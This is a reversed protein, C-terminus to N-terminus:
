WVLVGIRLVAAPALTGMDAGEHVSSLFADVRGASVYRQVALIEM